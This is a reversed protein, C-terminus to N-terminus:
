GEATAPRGLPVRRSGAVHQTFSRAWEGVPGLSSALQVAASGGLKWPQFCPDTRAGHGSILAGVGCAAGGGGVAAAPRGGGRGAPAAACPETQAFRVGAGGEEGQIRSLSSADGDPIPAVM